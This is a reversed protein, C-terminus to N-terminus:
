LKRDFFPLRCKFCSPSRNQDELADKLPRIYARCKVKATFLTALRTAEDSEHVEDFLDFPNHSGVIQRFRVSASSDQLDELDDHNM